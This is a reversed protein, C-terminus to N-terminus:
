RTPRRAEHFWARYQEMRARQDSPAHRVCTAYEQTGPQAGWRAEACDNPNYGTEFAARRAMAEAVTLEWASGDSRTYSFWIPLACTQVGTM